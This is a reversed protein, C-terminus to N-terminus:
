QDGKLIAEAKMICHEYFAKDTSRKVEALIRELAKVLRPLDTRSDTVSEWRQDYCDPPTGAARNCYVCRGTAGDFVCNDAPLCSPTAKECREKIKTLIEAIESM